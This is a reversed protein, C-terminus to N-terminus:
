PGRGRESPWPVPRTAAPPSSRPGSTSCGTPASSRSVRRSDRWGRRSTATPAPSTGGPPPAPPPPRPPPPPPRPPPPPPPGGRALRAAVAHFYLVFNLSGTDEIVATGAEIEALADDYRGAYTHTGAAIMHAMPILSLAGRRENRERSRVSQAIAEDFRDLGTLESAYFMDPILYSAPVVRGSEFLATAERAHRVADEGHGTVADVCGLVQHAVCALTADGEAVGAALGETGARRAEDTGITGTIVQLQAVFCGLRAREEDPAGPAQVARGITAIAAAIDGRNGYVSSLGRLAQFATADGPNSALVAEAAREARDLHGCWALPEIMRALIASRGEWPDPALALAADYLEIAAVPSIAITDGAARELWAVADLDGPRAGRAYQAAVQATPAGADALARAAALHLDRREAPLMHDYVADRVLDHRFRLHDDGGAVLGASAADRLDAAVDIVARGTVTALDGLTFTTGLLSALRLLERTPAPLWSLRRVLTESLGEPRAAPPVEAVGAVISLHGEDDLARLLETVYLPNGATAGLRRRLGSGPAAGTIAAALAQTDLPDLADIRLHRGRGEVVLDVLRDLEAPRPAPRMATVLAVRGTGARRVLARLVGLSLDDAWQADDVVVLVPGDGALADVADVSAEVVAFSLDEVDGPRREGSLLERLRGGAPRDAGASALATPLLGPRRTVEDAAIDVVTLELQRALAVADRVLHSKGIGAEGELVLTGGSGGVAGVLLDHVAAREAERGITARTTEAAPHDDVAWLHWRDRFGKLRVRGRDAVRVGPVTGILQRVVDSVLVDGGEARDAIRAAANVAGGIPDTDRELVEGANIGIRVRPATDALARQVALAFAVARRPSAFLLMLGDGLAKVERGGHRELLDRAVGLQRGIGDTGSRDGVREVLSTSGEVDVFAITAIGEDVDTPDRASGAPSAM